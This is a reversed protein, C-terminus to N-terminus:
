ASRARAARRARPTLTVTDGIRAQLTAALQQDLVVEGPRLAGHLLRFTHIHTSTAAAAGRPDVGAGARITGAPALTSSARSRRRRPRRRGAAVGPQSRSRRGRGARGARRSAVPGQWDLPM